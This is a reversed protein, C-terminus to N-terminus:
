VETNSSLAAQSKGYGCYLDCLLDGNLANEKCADTIDLLQSAFWESSLKFKKQIFYRWGKKSYGSSNRHLVSEIGIARDQLILSKRGQFLTQFHSGYEAASEKDISQLTSLIAKMNTADSEALEFSEDSVLRYYAYSRFYTARLLQTQSVTSDCNLIIYSCIDITETWNLLKLHCCSSNLKCSIEFIRLQDSANPNKELDKAIEALITLYGRNLAVKYDIPDKSSEAAAFLRDAELKLVGLKESRAKPSDADEEDVLDDEILNWKSYDIGRSM